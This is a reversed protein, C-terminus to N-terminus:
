RRRLRQYARRAEAEEADAKEDCRLCEKAGQPLPMRLCEPCLGLFFMSKDPRRFGVIVTGDDCVLVGDNRVAEYLLTVPNVYEDSV